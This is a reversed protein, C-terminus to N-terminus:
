FSLSGKKGMNSVDQVFEGLVAGIASRKTPNEGAAKEAYDVAACVKDVKYRFMAEAIEVDAAILQGREYKQRVAKEVARSPRGSNQSAIYQVLDSM